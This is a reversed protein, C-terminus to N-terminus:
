PKTSDSGNSTDTLFLSILLQEERRAEYKSRTAKREEEELLSDSVLDEDENLVEDAGAADLLASVTSARSSFGAEFSKEEICKICYSHGCDPLLLPIRVKASFQEKCLPCQIEELDVM